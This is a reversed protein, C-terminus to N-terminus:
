RCGRSSQHWGRHSLKIGPERGRKRGGGGARLLFAVAVRTPLEIKVAGAKIADLLLANYETDISIDDNSYAFREKFAARATRLGHKKVKLYLAAPGVWDKMWDWRKTYGASRAFIALKGFFAYSAIGYDDAKTM